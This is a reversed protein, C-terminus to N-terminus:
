LRDSPLQLPGARRQPGRGESLLDLGRLRHLRSLGPGAGGGGRALWPGGPGRRLSADRAWGHGAWCGNAM